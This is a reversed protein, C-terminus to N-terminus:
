CSYKVKDAATKKYIYRSTQPLFDYGCFTVAGPCVGSPNVYLNCIQDLILKAYLLVLVTKDESFHAGAFTKNPLEYNSACDRGRLPTSCFTVATCYAHESLLSEQGDQNWFLAKGPKNPRHRAKETRLLRPFYRPLGPTPHWEKQDSKRTCLPMFRSRWVLDDICCWLEQWGHM